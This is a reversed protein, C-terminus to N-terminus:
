NKTTWFFYWSNQIDLSLTERTPKLSQIM